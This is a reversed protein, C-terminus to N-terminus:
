LRGGLFNATAADKSRAVSVGALFNSTAADKSRAVSIGTLSMPPLQTRMGFWLFARGFIPPLQSRVALWRCMRSKAEGKTQVRATSPVVTNCPGPMATAPGGPVAVWALCASSGGASSAATTTPEDTAIGPTEAAAPRKAAERLCEALKKATAPGDVRWSM